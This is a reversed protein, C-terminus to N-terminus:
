EALEGVRGQVRREAEGAQLDPVDVARAPPLLQPALQLHSDLQAGGARIACCSLQPWGQHACWGVPIALAQRQAAQVQLMADSGTM